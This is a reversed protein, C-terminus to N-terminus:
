VAYRTTSMQFFFTPFLEDSNQIQYIKLNDRTFHTMVKEGYTGTGWWPGAPQCAAWQQPASQTPARHKSNVFIRYKEQIKMNFQEFDSFFTEAGM